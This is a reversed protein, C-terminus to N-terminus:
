EACCPAAIPCSSSTSTSIMVASGACAALSENPAEASAPMMCCPPTESVAANSQLPCRHCPSVDEVAVYIGAGTVAIAALVGAVVKAFM